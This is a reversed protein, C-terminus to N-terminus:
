SVGSWIVRIVWYGSYYSGFQYPMMVDNVLCSLKLDFASSLNASVTQLERIVASYLGFVLVIDLFSGFLFRIDRNSNRSVPWFYGIDM